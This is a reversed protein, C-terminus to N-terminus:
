WISDYVRIIRHIRPIGLVPLVGFVEPVPSRTVLRLALAVAPRVGEYVAAHCEEEESEAAAYDSSFLGNPGFPRENEM